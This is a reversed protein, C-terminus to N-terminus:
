ISKSMKINRGNIQLIIIQKFIIKLLSKLIQIFKLKTTFEKISGDTQYLYGKIAGRIIIQIRNIKMSLSMKIIIPNAKIKYRIEQINTKTM